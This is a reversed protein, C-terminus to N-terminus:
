DKYKLSHSITHELGGEPSRTKEDWQAQVGMPLTPSSHPKAQESSIAPLSWLHTTGEVELDSCGSQPKWKSLSDNTFLNAHSVCEMGNWKGM